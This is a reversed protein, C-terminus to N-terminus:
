KRWSRRRISRPSSEWEACRLCAVGEGGSRVAVCRDRRGGLQARRDGQRHGRGVPRPRLEPIGRDRRGAHSRSGRRARCPRRAGAFGQAGCGNNRLPGLQQSPGVAQVVRRMQRDLELPLRQMTRTAADVQGDFLNADLAALRPLLADLATSAAAIKTSAGALNGTGLAAAIADLSSTLAEAESELSAADLKTTLASLTDVAHGLPWAAASALFAALNQLTLRMHQKLAAEDMERLAGVDLRAV